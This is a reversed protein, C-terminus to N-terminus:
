KGAKEEEGLLPSKEVTTKETVDVNVDADSPIEYIIRNTDTFVLKPPEGSTNGKLTIDIVKHRSTSKVVVMEVNGMKVVDGVKCGPPSLSNTKAAPVTAPPTQTRAQAAAAQNPDTKASNASKSVSPAAQNTPAAKEEKQLEEAKQSFIEKKLELEKANLNNERWLYAGSLIFLGFCAISLIIFIERRTM